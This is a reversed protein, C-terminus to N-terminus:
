PRVAPASQAFYTLSLLTIFLLFRMSYDKPFGRRLAIFSLIPLSLIFLFQYVRFGLAGFEFGLIMM